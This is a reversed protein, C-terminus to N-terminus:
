NSINNVTRQTCESCLVATAEMSVEVWNSCPEGEPSYEAWKSSELNSNQCIMTRTKRGKEGIVEKSKWM